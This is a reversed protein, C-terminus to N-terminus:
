LMRGDTWNRLDNEVHGAQVHLREVAPDAAAMFRKAQQAADPISVHM